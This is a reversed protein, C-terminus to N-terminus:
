RQSTADVNSQISKEFNPDHILKIYRAFSFVGTRRKIRSCGFVFTWSPKPYLDKNIIGIVWYADKALYENMLLDLLDTALYQIKGTDKRIRWSIGLDEVLSPIDIRKDIIKVEMGYFFASWYKQLKILVEEPIDDDM